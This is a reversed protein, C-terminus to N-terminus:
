DKIECDNPTLICAVCNEFDSTKEPNIVNDALDFIFYIISPLLFIGVGIILRVVINKAQKPADEPKGSTIIQFLNYIGIGIIIVPVLIKALFLLFGLFQLTRAVTPENCVHDLNIDCNEGNEGCLKDPNFGHQDDNGINIDSDDGNSIERDDESVLILEGKHNDDKTSNITKAEKATREIWLNGQEECSSAIVFDETATLKYSTNSQVSFTVKGNTVIMLIRASDSGPLYGNSKYECSMVQNEPTNLSIETSSKGKNLKGVKYEPDVSTCVDISNGSKPCLRYGSYTDIARYMEQPCKLITRNSFLFNEFLIYDSKYISYSDSSVTIEQNEKVQVLVEEDDFDYYCSLDEAYVM